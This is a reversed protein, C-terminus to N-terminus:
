FVEFGGCDRCFDRFELLWEYTASYLDVADIDNVDTTPTFVVRKKPEDTTKLNAKIREGPKMVSLRSDLLRAIRSATEANIEAGCGNAGMREYLDDDILKEEQLLILTPRWNWANIKLDEGCKPVLIFSM